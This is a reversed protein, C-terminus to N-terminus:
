NVVGTPSAKNIDGEDEALPTFGVPATPPKLNGTIDAAADSGAGSGFGSVYEATAYTDNLGKTGSPESEAIPILAQSSGYQQIQAALMAKRRAVGQEHLKNRWYPYDPEAEVPLFSLYPNPTSPSDPAGAKSSLVSLPKSSHITESQRIGSSGSSVSSYIGAAVLLITTSTLVIFKNNSSIVRARSSKM